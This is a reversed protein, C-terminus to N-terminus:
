IVTLDCSSGYPLSKFPYPQSTKVKGKKPTRLSTEAKKVANYLDPRHAQLTYKNHYITFCNVRFGRMCKTCTFQTYGVSDTPMLLSCLMWHIGKQDIIKVLFQRDDSKKDQVRNSSPLFVNFQPLPTLAVQWQNYEVHEHVLSEVDKQKLEFMDVIPTGQKTIEGLLANSNIHLRGPCFYAYEYDRKERRVTATTSRYQYLRDVANMFVKYAVIVAPVQLTSRRVSEDRIWRHLPALGHVWMIANEDPKHIGRLSIGALNKTCFTVVTRDIFTVYGANQTLVPNTETWALKYVQVLCWAGRSRLKLAATADKLLPRKIGDVNNSNLM